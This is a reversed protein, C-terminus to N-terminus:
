AEKKAWVPRSGPRKPRDFGGPKGGGGDRKPGGFNGRPKDGFNGRPKGGFNGRPKDASHAPREARDFSPKADRNFPKDGSPAFDRREGRDTRPRDDRNFAPKDGRPAFDRRPGRDAQPRDDRNFPKADGRPAFDRKEGRPAFDRREAGETRPKDDRNFAPKPGRDYRPKGAFPKDGFAKRPRDFSRAEGAGESPTSDFKPRDNFPRDGQPRDDRPRDGRPKFDGRGEGRKAGAFGEKKKFWPQNPREPAAERPKPKQYMITPEAQMPTWNARMGAEKAADVPTAERPAQPAANQQPKGEYRPKDRNFPKRDGFAPRESRDRQPRDGFAPRESRDRQPRDSQPKMSRGNPRRAEKGGQPVEAKGLPHITVPISLRITREIDRLLSREDGACLAIASGEAGARATRGIRHVYSEPVHPLDFNIVHSVGDIDIGRAAIDTAVLVMIKGAKFGALAKERNAQSKNGHIASATYNAQALGRVVKDAGHKTRCFVLTRTMNNDKLLDNLLALKGAQEVHIVSQTVREVTTAVPAVEVRVPDNLLGAALGAIEKPMTASFFLNQRQKPILSVIRRIAHIFGLDLMQDVEDLVFVEVKSLSIARREILDVLRGPTAILVDLGGRCLEVQKGISTGGFVVARSFKMNRGYTKFSEGIQAALERTPSLILVKAHGKAVRETSKSLRELIPLAFAATKGTGTQAIGLLDKGELLPPIAKAQIPTPTDYGEQTLAKLIPASLGLDTFQTLIISECSCLPNPGARQGSAPSTSWGM